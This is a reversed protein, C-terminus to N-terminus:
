SALVLWSGNHRQVPIARSDLSLSYRGDPLDHPADSIPLLAYEPSDSNPLPVEFASVKCPAEREMGKLYGSLTVHRHASAM